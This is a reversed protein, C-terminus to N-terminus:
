PTSGPSSVNADHGAMAVTVDRDERRKQFPASEIVGLLLASFRGDQKEIRAVIQDVTELDYNELGRGLAYTLLKETVCRYFDEQHNAVLVHKLDTMDKFPEGTILKGSADITQNREKTRYMGMANFNELALGIPDMRQHCSACLPQTRHAEMSERLLPQHDTISKAAVDLAPVNPPPPPVPTGLINDLIFLGRKVPSTRTPNSTVTLITGQTIVGGRPSDAPLQVLKMEDGTVGPVGYYQALRQNLFTYNSDLFEALPRDARMIHDFYMETEQRMALRLEPTLGAPAAGGRGGRRGGAGRVNAPAAAPPLDGAAGAIVAPPAAERALVAQPDIPVNEIDRSQLWQGAFNAVLASSRPDALMRNVQAGLNTRLQHAAALKFLGEDPMSSWLFYSLRSALAYEDVQADSAGAALPEVAEDRFLFRPSALVAVMAQAVGAEFTQGPRRYVGAAMAVLRQVTDEDVPRRYAKTAFGRLVDAAYGDRSAATLNGLAPFFRDLNKPKVWHELELPGRFTLANIRLNLARIQEQPAGLPTTEFSLDHKGAKIEHEFDFVFDLNNERNWDREFVVEGDVKFQFHCRNEDFRDGVYTEGGTMALTLHYRGGQALEITHGAKAATYYTLSIVKAPTGSLTHGDVVQEAPVRPTTPVAEQVISRAANVYKELLMPPLTMADAIDDFGSGTDDVPFEKTTDFDVGMLDRITNRYEMRNLRRVTVRGPDPNAPDLGLADYKIWSALRDTEAATLKPGSAPMLGARVNKLVAVWLASNALLEQDSGLKDFAVKGKSEGAGHCDYCHDKLMPEITQHYDAAAKASAAAPASTAARLGATVLAALLGLTLPTRRSLMFFPPLWKPKAMSFSASPRVFTRGAARSPL